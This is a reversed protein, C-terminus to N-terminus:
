EGARVAEEYATRQVVSLTGPNWTSPDVLEMGDLGVPELGRARLGNIIGPLAAIMARPRALRRRADEYEAGDHLDIISGPQLDLHELVGRAIADPDVTNWDSPNVDADVLDFQGSSFMTSQSCSAYDFAPARAYRSPSGTIHGIAAEALDYDGVGMAHLHSHNGIVHGADLMRRLTNPWREAWKGIVFFTATVRERALVALVEETRPPNPGDDFTLAVAPADRRGHTYYEVTM